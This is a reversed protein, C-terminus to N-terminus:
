SPKLAGDLFLAIRRRLEDGLSEVPYDGGARVVAGTVMDVLMSAYSALRRNDRLRGTEKLTQLVTDVIREYGMTRLAERRRAPEPHTMERAVAATIAPEEAVLRAIVDAMDELTRRASRRRSRDISAEITAVHRAGIECLIMEKYGFYNFVSTRSTGAERAIQDMTTGDIGHRSFLREAADILAERTSAKKRERASARLPPRTDIVTM